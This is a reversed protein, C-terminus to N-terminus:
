VSRWVRSQRGVEKLRLLASLSCLLSGAAAAAGVRLAGGMGPQSAPLLGWLVKLADSSLDRAM